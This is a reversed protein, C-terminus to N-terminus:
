CPMMMSLLLWNAMVWCMLEWSPLISCRAVNVVLQFFLFRQLNRYLSRGWMVANAISKFCRISLLIGEELFINICSPQDDSVAVAEGIVLEGM